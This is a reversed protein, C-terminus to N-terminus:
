EGTPRSVRRALAMVGRDQAALLVLTHEHVGDRSGRDDPPRL